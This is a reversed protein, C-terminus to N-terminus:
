RGAMSDHTARMSREILTVAREINRSVICSYLVDIVVLQTIRSLSAGLRFVSESAPIVLAIDSIRAVANKGIRTLSILRAGSRKAEIAAKLVQATAGSYSIVLAVDKKGMGCATTIQAHPDFSFVCPIGLRVLKLSFDYAVVASAGIGFIATSRAKLIATAAREIDQTDIVGILSDLVTKLGDVTKRALEETRVGSDLQFDPPPLDDAEKPGYVDKALLLQLERYGALRMKKCLRVVAPASTKSRRALESITYYLVTKPNSLIYDAVKREATTCSPLIEKLLILGSAM